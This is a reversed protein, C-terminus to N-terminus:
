HVLGLLAQLKPAFLNLAALVAGTGVVAKVIFDKSPLHSVRETLTALDVKIDTLADETKHVRGEISAQWADM